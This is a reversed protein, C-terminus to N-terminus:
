ESLPQGARLAQLAKRVMEASEVDPPIAQLAATWAEDAEAPRELQVLAVGRAWLIVPDQPTNILAKDFHTLAEEYLSPEGAATRILIEGIAYHATHSREDLALVKEWARKADEWRELVMYSRGAMMQTQLNDPDEKLRKELRAVM